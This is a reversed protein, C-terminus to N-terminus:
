RKLIVTGMQVSCGGYCATCVGQQSAWPTGPDAEVGAVVGLRMLVRTCSISSTLVIRGSM